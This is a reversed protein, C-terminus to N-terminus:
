GRVSGDPARLGYGAARDVLVHSLWVLGLGLLAPSALAGAAVLAVPGPLAHVANYLPVARSALRGAANAERSIGALLAIDPVLWLPLAWPGILAVAGAQAALGAGLVAIRSSLHRPLPLAIASM